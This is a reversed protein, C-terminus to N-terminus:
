LFVSSVEKPNEDQYRTGCGAHRVRPYPYAETTLGEFPDGRYIAQTARGGKQFGAIRCVRVNVLVLFALRGERGRL